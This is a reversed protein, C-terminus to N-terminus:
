ERCVIGNSVMMLAAMPAESLSPLSRKSPNRLVGRRSRRELSRRKKSLIFPACYKLITCSVKVIAITACQTRRRGRLLLM